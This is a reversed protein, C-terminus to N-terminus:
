QAPQNYGVVKCARPLPKGSNFYDIDTSVVTMPQGPHVLFNSGSFSQGGVTFTDATLLDAYTTKTGPFVVTVETVMVTGGSAPNRFTM